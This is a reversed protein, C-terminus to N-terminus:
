RGRAREERELRRDSVENIWDSDQQDIMNGTISAVINTCTIDVVAAQLEKSIFNIFYPAVAPAFYSTGTAISAITFMAGLMSMVKYGHGTKAEINGFPNIADKFTKWREKLGKISSINAIEFVAPLAMSLLLAGALGGYKSGLASGAIFLIPKIINSIWKSLSQAM